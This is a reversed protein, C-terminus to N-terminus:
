MGFMARGGVGRKWGVVEGRGLGGGTWEDEHTLAEMLLCCQRTCYIPSHSPWEGM